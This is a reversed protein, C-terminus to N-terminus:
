RTQVEPKDGPAPVNQRSICRCDCFGGPSRKGRAADCRYYQGGEKYVKGVMMDNCEGQCSGGKGGKKINGRKIGGIDRAALNILANKGSGRDVESTLSCDTMGKMDVSASTAALVGFSMPLAAILVGVISLKTINNM